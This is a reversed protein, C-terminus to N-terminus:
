QSVATSEDSLADKRGSYITAIGLTLPRAQAETFGATRLIALFDEGDPFHGVSGPLYTYAAQDGSILRGIGPLVRTFYFNYLQRFPAKRPRSFELIVVTGGPRLVRFMEGIGAATNEFNRVGFGSLVVDFSAEGFPLTEADGYKLEILHTLARRELKRRGVALMNESLDVGVVRQPRAKLAALAFDGTGTAVDLIDRPRQDCFLEVARGRWYRDVNFSLLHNLLDYRAAIRDFMLAVQKKRSLPSHAYPLTGM